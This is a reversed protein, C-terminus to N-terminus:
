GKSQWQQNRGYRRFGRQPIPAEMASSASKGGDWKKTVIQYVTQKVGQDCNWMRRSHHVGIELPNLYETRM